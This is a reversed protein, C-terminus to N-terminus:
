SCECECKGEEEQEEKGPLTEEMQQLMEKHKHALELHDSQLKQLQELLSDREM